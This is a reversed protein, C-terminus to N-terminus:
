NTKEAFYGPYTLRKGNDYGFDVTTDSESKKTICIYCSDGFSDTAQIGCMPNSENMYKIFYRITEGNNFDLTWTKTEGVYFYSDKTLKKGLLHTLVFKYNRQTNPEKPTGSLLFSALITTLILKM